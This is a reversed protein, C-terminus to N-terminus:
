APGKFEPAAPPPLRDIPPPPLARPDQPLVYEVRLSLETRVPPPEGAHQVEQRDSMGLRNKALFILSPVNKGVVASRWLAGYLQLNALEWGEQFEEKLRKQVADRSVGLYKAVQAQTAGIGFLRTAARRQAPTPVWVNGRGRRPKAHPEPEPKPKPKPKTMQSYVYDWPTREALPRKRPDRIRM